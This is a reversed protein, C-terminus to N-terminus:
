VRLAASDRFLVGPINVISTHGSCVVHSRLVVLSNKIIYTPELRAACLYLGPDKIHPLVMILKIHPLLM